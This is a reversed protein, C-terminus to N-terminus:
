KMKGWEIDPQFVLQWSFDKRGTVPAQIAIGLLLNENMRVKMGGLLNIIPREGPMGEGSIEVVPFLRTGLKLVFAASGEVMDTRPDYHVIQNFAAKSNALATSFGVLTNIHQDGDSHTPFEFEIIPSFGSM